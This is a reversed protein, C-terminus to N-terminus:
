FPRKLPSAGGSSSDGKGGGKSSRGSAEDDHGERAANPNYGTPGPIKWEGLDKPARYSQGFAGSGRNLGFIEKGGKAHEADPRHGFKEAQEKIAKEDELRQQERVEKEKDKKLKDAVAREKAIRRDRDAAKRRREEEQKRRFEPSDPNDTFWGM